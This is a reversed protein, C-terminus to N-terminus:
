VNGNVSSDGKKNYATLVAMNILDRMEATIPHAIDVYEGTHRKRSPMSVFLGKSGEVIKFDHVVFSNDFTVSAVAQIKSSEGMNSRLSYVRVDTIQM